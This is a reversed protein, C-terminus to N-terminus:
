GKYFADPGDKAIAELTRALDALHITDGEAWKGGGPKGYAAVTSPFQSLPGALMGNLDRAFNASVRFGRALEIAPAVVEAWKLKGFKKHALELGRVTGPVGPALWGAATLSYDTTGDPKLYMGATSALPARERYDIAVPSGTKPAIVMFGGGGINGAGPYTVAMALATAVAADVANGGKRLISAGADSALDSASVVMGTKSTVISDAGPSQPAQLLTLALFHLLM